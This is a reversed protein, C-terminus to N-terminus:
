GTLYKGTLYKGENEINYRETKNNTRWIKKMTRKHFEGFKDFWLKNQQKKLWKSKNKSDYQRTLLELNAFNIRNTLRGFNARKCNKICKGM